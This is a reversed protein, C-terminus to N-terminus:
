KESRLKADILLSLRAMAEKQNEYVIGANALMGLIKLAM